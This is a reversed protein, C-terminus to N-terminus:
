KEQKEKKHLVALVKHFGFNYHRHSDGTNRAEIQAM